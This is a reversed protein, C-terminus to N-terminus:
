LNHSNFGNFLVSKVIRNIKELRWPQSLRESETNRFECVFSIKGVIAQKSNGMLSQPEKTFENAEGLHRRKEGNQATGATSLPM